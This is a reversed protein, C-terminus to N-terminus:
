NATEDDLDNGVTAIFGHIGARVLSMRHLFGSSPKVIRLATENSYKSGIWAAVM